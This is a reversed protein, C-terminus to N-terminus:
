TNKTKTGRRRRWSIILLLLPPPPPHSPPRSLPSSALCSSFSSPCSGRRQFGPFRFVQFSSSEFVQFTLIRVVQFSAFKFVQTPFNSFMLFTFAQFSSFSSARFSKSSRYCWGFVGLWSILFLWSSIPFVYSWMSDSMSCCSDFKFIHCHLRIPLIDSQSWIEKGVASCSHVLKM